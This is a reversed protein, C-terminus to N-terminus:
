VGSFERSNKLVIPWSRANRQAGAFSRKQRDSCVDCCRPKKDAKLVSWVKSSAKQATVRARHKMHYGCEASNRNAM